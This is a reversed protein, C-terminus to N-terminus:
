GLTPAVSFRTIAATQASPVVTMSFAARSGSITSRPLNRTLMPASMSPAPVGQRTTRPTSPSCGASCVTMASRISAPVKRIAAATVPPSTSTSPTEGWKRSM